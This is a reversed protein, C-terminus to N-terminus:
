MVNLPNNVVKHKRQMCLMPFITKGAFLLWSQGVCVCPLLEIAFMGSARCSDQM